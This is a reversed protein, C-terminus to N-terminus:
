YFIDIYCQKDIYQTKFRLWVCFDLIIKAREETEEVSFCFSLVSDARGKQSLIHCFNIKKTIEKYQKYVDFFEANRTCIPHM